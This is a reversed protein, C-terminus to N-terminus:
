LKLQGKVKGSLLEQNLQQNLDRLEFLKIAELNPNNKLHKKIDETKEINLEIIFYKLVNFSTWALAVRFGIDNQTHVDVHKHIKPSSLLFKLTEVNDKKCSTRFANDQYTHIDARYKLQYNTLLFHALEL